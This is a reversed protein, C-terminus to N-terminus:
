RKSSARPQPYVARIRRGYRRETEAWLEYTEPFLRGTDLTVIDIDLGHECIMQLIVQDELGFSTTFVLKGAVESRFRALREAPPLDALVANLRAAHAALAARDSGRCARQRRSQCRDSRCRRRGRSDTRRRCNQRRSRAGAARDAPQGCLRDAAIPQALAIEIEGVHNRAIAEVETPVLEGPDVANEIAVITGRREAMGVRVGITGGVALPEEHLWFVRARLRSAAEAPAASRQLSM